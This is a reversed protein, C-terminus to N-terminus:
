PQLLGIIRQCPFIIVLLSHQYATIPM